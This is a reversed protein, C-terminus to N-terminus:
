LSHIIGLPYVVKRRHAYDRPLVGKRKSQGLHLLFERLIVIIEGPGEQIGVVGGFNIMIERLGPLSSEDLGEYDLGLCATLATANVQGM